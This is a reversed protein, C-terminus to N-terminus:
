GNCQLEEGHEYEGKMQLSLINIASRRDDMFHQISAGHELLSRLHVRKLEAERHRGIKEGVAEWKTITFIVKGLDDECLQQFYGLYDSHFKSWSDSIRHFYLVGALIRSEKKRSLSQNPCLERIVTLVYLQILWNSLMKFTTLDEKTGDFGPTDVLCIESESFEPLSVCFEPMKANDRPGGSLLRKGKVIEIFQPNPTIWAIDPIFSQFITRAKSKGTGSPGM